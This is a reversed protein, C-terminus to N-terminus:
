RSLNSHGRSFLARSFYCAAGPVQGPRGCIGLVALRTNPDRHADPLDCRQMFYYGPILFKMTRLQHLFITERLVLPSSRRSVASIAASHAGRNRRSGRSGRNSREASGIEASIARTTCSSASCSFAAATAAIMWSASERTSLLAVSAPPFSGPPRCTLQGADQDSAPSSIAAPVISKFPTRASNISAACSAIWSPTSSSSRTTPILASVFESAGGPPSVPVVVPEDALSSTRLWASSSLASSCANSFEVPSSSSLM